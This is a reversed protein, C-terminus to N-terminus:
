KVGQILLALVTALGWFAGGFSLAAHADADADAGALERRQLSTEDASSEPLPAPPPLWIPSAACVSEPSGHENSPPKARAHMAPRCVRPLALARLLKTPTRRAVFDPKPLNWRSRVLDSVRGLVRGQESSSTGHGRGRRERRRGAATGPRRSLEFYRTRWASGFAGKGQKQMTGEFVRAMGEVSRQREM